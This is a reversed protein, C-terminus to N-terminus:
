QIYCGYEDDEKCLGLFDVLSPVFKEAMPDELMAADGFCILARKQRSMGVNLRNPNMLFGYKGSGSDKDRLTVNNSRVMSLYVIDFEMGQFSDVTGIRLREVIKGNKDTLTSYPPYIEFQHDVYRGMKKNILAKRLEDIQERYFTIIGFTLKEGGPSDMMKQLHDVLKEAEKVRKRSKGNRGKQDKTAESYPVNVFIAAKNKLDPLDHEFESAPRPSELENDYFHKSILDGLVPHTRYQADLMVVRPIGDNKTIKSMRNFLYQFMSDEVNDRLQEMLQDQNIMGQELQQVIAEDVMHPLQKHDGVLIIRNKSLAIPIFLDLPNSRAAEDVIVNEYTYEIDEMGLGHMVSKDNILKKSVSQQNTAGIVSMYHKVTQQVIIPENQLYHLYDIVIRDEGAISQLMDKSLYTDIDQLLELVNEMQKKDFFIDDKPMFDVLMARKLVKLLKEDNKSFIEAQFAKLVRKLDTIQREYNEEFEDELYAIIFRIIREGGDLYQDVTEPLGYLHKLILDTDKMSGSRLFINQKIKRIKKLYEFPIKDELLDYLRDLLLITSDKTNASQLYNLRLTDFQRIYESEVFHPYKEYLAKQKEEIWNIITNEVIEEDTFDSNRGGVKVSPLGMIDLREVVNQVADHQFATVLNEAYKSNKATSLENLRELIARIVTTKGTGPPGQIIAIDPTNLAVEIAERQKKTPPHVPFVKEKVRDTLPEIYERKKEVFYGNDILIKQLNPRAARDNKILDLVNQQREVRTADGMVSLGIFGSKKLESSNKSIKITLSSDGVEYNSELKVNVRNLSILETIYDKFTLSTSYLSTPKSEFIVFSDDNENLRDMFKQLKQPNSFELRYIQTREEEINTYEILGVYQLHEILGKTEIKSYKEWLSLYDEINKASVRLMAEAHSNLSSTESVHDFSFQGIFLEYKYKEEEIKTHIKKIQLKMSLDIAEYQEVELYVSKGVIFFSKFMENALLSTNYAVVIGKQRGFDVLFEEILEKRPDRKNVLTMVNKMLDQYHNPVGIEFDLEKFGSYFVARITYKKEGLQTFVYLLKFGNMGQFYNFKDLSSKKAFEMKTPKPEENATDWIIFSDGHPIIQVKCNKSIVSPDEVVIEFNYLSTAHRLETFQM